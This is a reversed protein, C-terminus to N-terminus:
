LAPLEEQVACAWFNACTAHYSQGKHFLLQLGYEEERGDLALSPSIVVKKAMLCLSCKSISDSLVDSEEEEVVSPVSQM